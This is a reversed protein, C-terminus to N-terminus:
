DDHPTRPLIVRVCLGKDSINEMVIDGGHSRIISRAIALGLGIGGTELNRSTEVRVFPEFVQELFEVPIGPGDDEITIHIADDMVKLETRAREGYRIANEILNRIARKLAFPRCRYPLSEPAGESVTFSVDEGLDHQDQTISDILAALDTARTDEQDADERAFALTAETMRQMEDLSELIKIRVEEDDIMEARLRMSTLPSRLDHSIAAMMRTRDEVFRQLRDRMQNFAQTTKRIEIPGSDELEPGKEGRGLAEAATALKGLPRTIRRVVVFTVICVAVGMLVLSLLTAYAWGGRKSRIQYTANLWNNNALQLSLSLGPAPGSPRMHGSKGIGGMESM